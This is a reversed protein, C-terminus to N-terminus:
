EREVMPFETTNKLYGDFCESARRILANMPERERVTLSSSLSPEFSSCCIPIGPLRSSFNRRVPVQRRKPRNCCFDLPASADARVPKFVLQKKREPAMITTATTTGERLHREPRSSLSRSPGILVAKSVHLEWLSDTSGKSDSPQQIPSSHRKM